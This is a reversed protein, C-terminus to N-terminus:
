SMIFLPCPPSSVTFESSPVPVSNIIVIRLLKTYCVNYSTIRYEEKWALHLLMLENGTERGASEPDLGSASVTKNRGTQKAAYLASDARKFWSEFTEKAMLEAAGISITVGGCEDFALSECTKRIKEALLM